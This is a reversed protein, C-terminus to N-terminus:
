ATFFTHDGVKFPDTKPIKAWNPRNVSHFLASTMYNLVGNTNDKIKKELLGAAVWQIQKYPEFDYSGKLIERIIGELKPRNPDNDNWCSFQRPALCIHKVSKRTAKVRNMIVNGVAIQGEIPEGRAEGVITLFLIEHDSLGDEIEKNTM